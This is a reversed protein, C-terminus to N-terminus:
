APRLCDHVFSVTLAFSDSGASFSSRHRYKLTNLIQSVFLLNSLSRRRKRDAPEPFLGCAGGARTLKSPQSGEQGALENEGSKGQPIGPLNSRQEAGTKGLSGRGSSLERRGWVRGSSLARCEDNPSNPPTELEPLPEQHNAETSCTVGYEGLVSVGLGQADSPNGERRIKVVCHRLDTMPM